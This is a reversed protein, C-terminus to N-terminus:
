SPGHSTIGESLRTPEESPQSPKGMRVRYMTITENPRITGKGWIKVRKGRLKVVKAQISRWTRAPFAEAIELRSADKDLLELLLEEDRSIWVTGGTARHPIPDQAIRRLYMTYSEKQRIPLPSFAHATEDRLTSLKKYINGWMREPFAKAIQLQTAGDDFLQLLTKTDSRTWTKGKASKHEVLLNDVSGDFWYVTLDLEHEETSLAEIRTILLHLIGHKQEEPYLNWKKLVLSFDRKLASLFELRQGEDDTSRLMNTLRAHESQAEEYRNQVAHVMDPNTLTDLSIIQREMVQELAALQKEIRYREQQYKQMSQSVVKDWTASDFTAQLKHHLLDTIAADVHSAVKAWLIKKMQNVSRFVYRYATDRKVWETGVNHWSGDELSVMLGASLPRGVPREEDLSPRANQRDARFAKNPRGDLTFESLYNFVQMFLDVPVIPEHNNFVKITRKVSWHGIYVANMLIDKLGTLGPCYGNGYINMRYNIYFGDPPPTSTLDPYYPGHQHIHRATKQLNGNYSLFLRFYELIIEAYPPFPVYKRWNLNETGDPLVKRKDVMYGVAVFSGVWRGEARMRKKAHALKGLIVSNIYEAAMECKFRFQRAHFTGTLPNAFDYVMSPTIVLVNATRCAEIFINVQIQTVDRFLRDEDQCAVARVAEGTILEFLQKMGPREDIKKAGSIGADMDILYVDTEDWGQNKLYSVMDITQISTSINGVQADTSQRYYVAVPDDTPLSTAADAVPSEPQPPKYYRKSM